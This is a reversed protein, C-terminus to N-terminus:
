PKRGQQRSGIWARHVTTLHQIIEGLKDPTVALRTVVQIPVGEESLKMLTEESLQVEYPLQGHGFTIIVQEGQLRVFVADAFLIPVKEFGEWRTPVSIRQGTVVKEGTARSRGRRSTM